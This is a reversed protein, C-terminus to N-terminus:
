ISNLYNNKCQPKHAFEIPLFFSLFSFFSRILINCVEPKSVKTFTFDLHQLFYLFDSNLRQLFHGQKSKIFFTAYDKVKKTIKM